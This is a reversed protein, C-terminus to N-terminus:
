EASDSVEQAEVETAEVENADDDATTEAAPTEVETAEESAEQSAEEQEEQAAKEQAAKQAAEKQAKADAAAKEDAVKKAALKNKDAAWKKDLVDKKALLAQIAEPYADPNTPLAVKLKAFDTIMQAPHRVKAAKKKRQRRNKKGGMGSAFAAMMDDDEEDKKKFATLKKGGFEAGSEVKRVAHTDQVKTLMDHDGSATPLAVKKDEPLFNNLYQALVDIKHKDQAHPDQLLKEAEYAALEKKYEEQEEQDKQKRAARNAASIERKRQFEEQKNAREQRAAQRKLYETHEEVKTQLFQKRSDWRRLQYEFDRLAKKHDDSKTRISKAEERKAKRAEVKKTIKVNIEEEEDRLKQILAFCEDQLSKYKNLIARKNDYEANRASREEKSETHEAKFEELEREAEAYKQADQVLERRKLKGVETVLRKEEKISHTGSQINEEIQKVCIKLIHPADPIRESIHRTDTKGSGSKARRVKDFNRQVTSPLDAKLKEVIAILKKRQTQIQKGTLGERKVSDFPAMEETRQLKLEQMRDLQEKKETRKATRQDSLTKIDATIKDAEAYTAKQAEENKKFQDQDKQKPLEPRNKIHEELLEPAKAALPEKSSKKAGSKEVAQGEKSEDNDSGDDSKATTTSSENVQDKSHASSAATGNTGVTAATEPTTTAM